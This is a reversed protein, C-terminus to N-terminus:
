VVGVLNGSDDYWGVQNCVDCGNIYQGCSSCQM